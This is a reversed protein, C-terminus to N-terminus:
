LKSNWTRIVKNFQRLHILVIEGGCATYNMDAARQSM